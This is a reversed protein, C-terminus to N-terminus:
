QYAPVMKRTITNSMFAQGGNQNGIEEGQFWTMIAFVKPMESAVLARSSDWNGTDYALSGNPTTGAEAFFIPKKASYFAGTATTGPTTLAAYRGGLAADSGIPHADM